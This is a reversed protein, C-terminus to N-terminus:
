QSVIDHTLELGAIEAFKLLDDGTAFAGGGNRIMISVQASEDGLAKRLSEIVTELTVADVSRSNFNLEVADEGDGVTIRM